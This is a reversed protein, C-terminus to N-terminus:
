RKESVNELEDLNETQIRPPKSTSVVCNEVQHSVASSAEFEGSAADNTAKRKQSRRTM